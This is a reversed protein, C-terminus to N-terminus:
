QNHAFTSLEDPSIFKANDTLLKIQNVDTSEFMSTQSEKSSRTKNM